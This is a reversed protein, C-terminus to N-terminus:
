ILLQKETVLGRYHGQKDTVAVQEINNVIMLKLCEDVTADEEVARMSKSMCEIVNHAYRNNLDAKSIAGIIMHNKDVVPIKSCKYKEMLIKPVDLKSMPSCCVFEKLMIERVRDM